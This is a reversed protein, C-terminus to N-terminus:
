SVRLILVRWGMEKHVSLCSMGPRSTIGDGGHGEILGIIFQERPGDGPIAFSKQDSVGVKRFGFAIPKPSSPDACEDILVAGLFGAFATSLISGRPRKRRTRTKRLRFPSGGYTHVQDRAGASEGGRDERQGGALGQISMQCVGSKGTLTSSRRVM